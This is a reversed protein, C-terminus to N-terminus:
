FSLGISFRTPDSLYNFNSYSYDARLTMTDIPLYLGFGMSLDEARNFRYGARFSLMKLITYETGIVVSESNDVPHNLQLAVTLVQLDDHLLDISSGVRFVTPPSFETFEASENVTEEGTSRDLYRKAFTGNPKTQSGFNSLAASFKLTHFGTWYFTGMDLLVTSMKNGALNEEVRKATVGFSFRDTMRAAYTLGIFHDQYVFYNGTGDPLYETTEPMPKMHLIGANLGLYHRGSISSSISCFDYRIDAPWRISSASFETSNFQAITGPNYYVSGADQDLSVVADSMGSARASVGIKLFTFISTGVRQGGLEPFLNQTLGLSLFLTAIIIRYAM